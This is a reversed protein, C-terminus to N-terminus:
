HAPARPKVRHRWYHASRHPRYTRYWRRPYGATPGSAWPGWYWTCCDPMFSDDWGASSSGCSLSLALAALAIMLIHPKMSMETNWFPLQNALDHRWLLRASHSTALLRHERGGCEQAKM